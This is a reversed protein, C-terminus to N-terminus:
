SGVAMARRERGPRAQKRAYMRSDASQIAPTLDDRSGFRAIGYSVTPDTPYAVDSAKANRKLEENLRDLRQAADSEKLAGLWLILFEDGGWRFLLDTPRIATRLTEAVLQIARDGAAHGLTDNIPKLNDIDLVAVCGAFPKGNPTETMLGDFARRNLVGTLADCEALKRLRSGASRLERNVAELERHVLEMVVMVMGFALLMELMLDYLSSCRLHPFDHERGVFYSYGCLPAYHLFDVTLVFLAAMMVGVGAGNSRHRGAFLAAFSAAFLCSVILAHIAMLGNIDRTIWPLVVAVAAAPAVLIWDRRTLAFDGHLNRCGALWLYGCAYELFCYCPFALPGLRPFSFAALLAALALSLCSWGAAWYSLFRRRVTRLLIACLLGVLVTGTFQVATGVISSEHYDM